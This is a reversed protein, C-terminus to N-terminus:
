KAVFLYRRRTPDSLELMVRAIIFKEPDKMLPVREGLDAYSEFAGAKKAAIFETVSKKGVGPLEELLHKKLNISGANNYFEMFKKEDRRVIDEVAYKLESQATNTLDDYGVRRKVREIQTRLNKEKGIYVRDGLSIQAKEKPELEFLKFNDEGVAYCVPGKRGPGGTPLGQPMYDLVFAYEEM